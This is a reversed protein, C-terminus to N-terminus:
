IQNNNVIIKLGFKYRYFCYGGFFALVKTADRWDFASLDDM